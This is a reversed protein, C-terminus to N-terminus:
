LENIKTNKKIKNYYISSFQNLQSNTNLKILRNLEKDIDIENKIEKTDNVQLIVFGAPMLIPDTYSGIELNYIKENIKENIENENIWGIKGGVNSTDAISYTLAANDFGENDITNKIEAYRLDLDASTLVKFFIESLLYSKSTEKKNKLFKKRLEIKNVKIKSNFKAYILENWLTEIKIKEKVNEFSVENDILYKKFDGLNSIGIKTYINSFISDLYKDEIKLEKFNKSIEIKKIKERIISKKSIEFRKNEEMNSINNNLVLLYKYENKIDQSTIIENEIKFLIKNEISFATQQFFILLILLYFNKKKLM